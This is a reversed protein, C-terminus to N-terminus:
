KSKKKDLRVLSSIGFVEPQIIGKWHNPIAENTIFDLIDEREDDDEDLLDMKNVVVFSRSVAKQIKNMFNFETKKGGGQRADMIFIALDTDALVKQTHQKHSDIGANTGPTDVLEINNKLWPLPLEIIINKVEDAREGEKTWEKLFDRIQSEQKKLTNLVSQRGVFRAYFPPDEEFLKLRKENNLHVLINFERAFRIYTPVATTPDVAVSLIAEGILGNIFTTKGSSFEGFVSIRIPQEEIFKLKGKQTFNNKSM